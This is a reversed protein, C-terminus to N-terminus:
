FDCQFLTQNLSRKNSKFLCKTRLRRTVRERSCKLNHAEEKKWNHIDRLGTSVLRKVEHM